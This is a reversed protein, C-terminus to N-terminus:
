FSVFSLYEFHDGPKVAALVDWFDRSTVILCELLGVLVAHSVQTVPDRTNIAKMVYICCNQDIGIM